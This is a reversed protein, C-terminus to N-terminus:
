RSPNGKVPVGRIRYEFCGISPKAKPRRILDKDVAPSGVSTGAFKAPSSSKLHFDDKTPNVFGPDRNYGHAENGYTSRWASWPVIVEKNKPDYTYAVRQSNDAYVNYDFTNGNTRGDEYTNCLVNCYGAGVSGFINNTWRNNSGGWIWADARPHGYLTNNVFENNSASDLNIGWQNHVILNNRILSHQTYKLQIGGGTIKHFYNDEVTLRESMAANEKTVFESNTYIGHDLLTGERGINWLESNSVKIDRCGDIMIGPHGYQNQKNWYRIDSVKVRNLLIDHCQWNVATSGIYIGCGPYGKFHLGEIKWYSDDHLILGIQDSKGGPGVFVPSEGIYNKVTFWSGPRGDRGQIDVAQGTYTGGRVLLTDGPSITAMGKQLTAWPQSISGTASDNGNTSVYYTAASVNATLFAFALGTVAAILKNM